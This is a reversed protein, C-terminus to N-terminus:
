RRKILYFFNNALVAVIQPHPAPIIHYLIHGYIEPHMRSLPLDRLGTHVNASLVASHARSLTASSHCFASSIKKTHCVWLM